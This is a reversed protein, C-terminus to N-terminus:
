KSYVDKKQPLDNKGMSAFITTSKNIYNTTACTCWKRTYFSNDQKFIRQRITLTQIYTFRINQSIQLM